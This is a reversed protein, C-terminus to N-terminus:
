LPSIRIISSVEPIFFTSKIREPIFKRNTLANQNGPNM